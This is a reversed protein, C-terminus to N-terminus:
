MRASVEANGLSFYAVASGPELAVAKQLEQLAEAREPLASLAIGLLLHADGSRPHERLVDRLVTVAQASSGERILMRAQSIEKEPNDRQLVPFSSLAAAPPPKQRSRDVNQSRLLPCLAPALCLWVTSRTLQIRWLATAGARVRNYMRNWRAAARVLPFLGAALRLPM